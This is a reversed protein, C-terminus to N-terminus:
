REEEKVVDMIQITTSPDQEAKQILQTLRFGDLTGSLVSYTRVSQGNRGHLRILRSSSRHNLEHILERTDENRLRDTQITVYRRDMSM